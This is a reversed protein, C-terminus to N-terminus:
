LDGEEEGVYAFRWESQLSEAPTAPSEANEYRSEERRRTDLAVAAEQSKGAQYGQRGIRDDFFEAPIAKALIILGRTNRQLRFWIKGQTCYRHKWSLGTRRASYLRRTSDAIGVVLFHCFDRESDHGGVLAWLLMEWAWM